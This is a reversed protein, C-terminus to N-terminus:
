LQQNIEIISYVHSNGKKSVREVIGLYNLINLLLQATRRNIKAAKAFDGSTFNDSLGDPVLKMYDKPNDFCVEDILSVPIRDCRSSGRKKDTSWGNLYRIEEVELMCLKLSFRPNDLAYKIKYLEFAAEYISAKHPSKRRSTIEGTNLDLWSLYKVAPMPYVVTVHCYELFVDLKRVLREFSRTQIEIIGDEGVIDAVYNGIKIEQNDSYPEYYEKLVAHLTKESLTGIGNKERDRNIIKECAQAFRISDM